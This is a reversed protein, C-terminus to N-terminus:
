RQLAFLVVNVSIKGADTREYGHCQLSGQSELACSIDLPSFIVAFKGDIELGELLPSTTRTTRRLPADQDRRTLPEVVRVQRVDYGGFQETFLEHAPPIRQLQASPLLTQMEARFSRAFEEDGCIADAFLLGGNELYAALNAREQDSLRFARRGQMFVIPFDPLTPNAASLYYRQHDVPLQVHQEVMQLMRKLSAPADDSGGGHQLKAVRLSSRPLETAQVQLRIPDVDLKDKLERSTAYTLVNAGISLSAQIRQSVAETYNRGRPADALEWHCSLDEPCYVVSTRCCSDIGWLPRMLDPDVTEEAYWVPHDPPLLRLPNDPFLELMLQRFDQDFDRGGCCAEAFIFGGTEVYQKLKLKDQESFELGDRGNIFLV